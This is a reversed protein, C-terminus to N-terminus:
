HCTSYLHDAGCEVNCVIISVRDDAGIVGVVGNAVPTEGQSCLRTSVFSGLSLPTSMLTLACLRRFLTSPRLKLRMFM